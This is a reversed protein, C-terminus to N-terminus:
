TAVGDVNGPRVIMRCTTEGRSVKSSASDVISHRRDAPQATAASSRLLVGAPRRWCWDRRDGGTGCVTRGSACWATWWRARRSRFMRRWSGVEAPRARRGTRWTEPSRIACTRRWKLKVRESGFAVIPASPVTGSAVITAWMKQSGNAVIPATNVCYIPPRSKTERQVPLWFDPLSLTLNHLIM